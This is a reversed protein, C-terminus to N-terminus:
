KILIQKVMKKISQTMKIHILLKKIYKLNGYKDKLNNYLEPNKNELIDVLVHVAEETFNIDSFNGQSFQILKNTIDVLGETEEDIGEAKLEDIQKQITKNNPDSQLQLTLRNIESQKNFLVDLQETKIGLTSMVDKLKKIIDQKTNNIKPTEKVPTEQNNDLYNSVKNSKLKKFVNQEPVVVDGEENIEWNGEQKRQLDEKEEIQLEKDFYINVLNDSINIVRDIFDSGTQLFEVVKEGFESNVNKAIVKAEAIPKGLGEKSLKEVKDILNEKIKIKCPM